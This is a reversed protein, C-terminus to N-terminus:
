DVLKYIAMFYKQCAKAMKLKQKPAFHLKDRAASERFHALRHAYPGMETDLPDAAAGQPGGQGGGTKKKMGWSRFSPARTVEIGTEGRTAENLEQIDDNYRKLMSIKLSRVRNGARASANNAPDRWAMCPPIPLTCYAISNSMGSDIVTRALREANERLELSAREVEERLAAVQHEDDLQEVGSFVKNSLIDNFGLVACVDVPTPHGSYESKFARLLDPIRGGPVSLIDQHIIDGKYDIGPGRWYNYLTSATLVVPLRGGCLFYHPKACQVCDFQGHHDQEAEIRYMKTSAHRHWIPVPNEGWEACALCFPRHNRHSNYLYSFQGKARNSEFAQIERSRYNSSMQALITTPCAKGKQVEPFLLSGYFAPIVPPPISTNPPACSVNIEKPMFIDFVEQMRTSSIPDQPPRNNDGLPGPDNVQVPHAVPPPGNVAAPLPQDILTPSGDCESFLGNAPLCLEGPPLTPVIDENRSLREMEFSDEMAFLDIDCDLVDDGEGPSDPADLIANIEDIPPLDGAPWALEGALLMLEVPSTLNQAEEEQGQPQNDESVM